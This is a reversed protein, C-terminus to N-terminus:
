RATPCCCPRTSRPGCTATSASRCTTASPRPRRRGPTGDHHRGRAAPRQAPVRGVARRVERGQHEQPPHDHADRRGVDADVDQRRGRHRGRHLDRHDAVPAEGHEQRLQQRRGRTATPAGETDAIQEAIEVDREFIGFNADAIGIARLRAEACWELEAFVREIDFKRIRSLTASGWDCFTCGYPCGRNTEIILGADAAAPRYSATSCDPSFRRRSALRPRRHSGAARDARRRRRHPVLPRARRRAGLSRHAGDGIADACRPCCSSSPRRARATCRRHRRPPADAFGASPTTTTSRPTPDGTSRRCQRPDVEKVLASYALNDATSWLYNSFLYIAPGAQPLRRCGRATGSCVPVSTTASSWCRRRRSGQGGRHGHGLSAPPGARNDHVGIVRVRGAPGGRPM